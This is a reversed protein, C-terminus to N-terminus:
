THSTEKVLSFKFLVLPSPEFAGQAAHDPSPLVRGSCSVHPVLCPPVGDDLMLFCPFFLIDGIRSNFQLPTRFFFHFPLYRASPYLLRPRIRLVISCALACLLHFPVKGFESLPFNFPQISFSSSLYRARMKQLSGVPSSLLFRVGRFPPPCDVM